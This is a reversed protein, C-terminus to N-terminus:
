AQEITGGYPGDQYTWVGIGQTVNFADTLSGTKGDPNEVTLTYIGPEMGWGVTATLSTSSVWGVDELMSEGLAATAGATFNTGTIIIEVDLDNPSLAPNVATVTPSGAAAQAHIPFGLGPSGMLWFYLFLAALATAVSLLIAALGKEM